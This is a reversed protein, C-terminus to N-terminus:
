KVTYPDTSTGSGAKYLVNANLYVVPRIAAYNYTETDKMGNNISVIYAHYTSTKSPTATWWETKPGNLYNYNQCNKSAATSCGNDISANMYDAATLLGVKQNQEVTRCEVAQEVGTEKVGRAGACQNFTTTKAKDNDSLFSKEKNYEALLNEKIRSASYVNIGSKYNAATNFRNDYPSTMALPTDLVLVVNGSTTIKVVRWLSNELQVYNNVTEGRFVYNGNKNYLGYGSSVIGNDNKIQDALQASTYSEGCNLNPTYSYIAGVKNVKVSGTCTAKNYKSLDKMYGEASLVSVDVTQSGGDKKPLNEQHDAFYEEAAEVMIAEMEEYTKNGGTCSTLLLMIVIFAIVVGLLLGLLKILKKKEDNNNSSSSSSSTELEEEDYDDETELTEEAIIEKGKNGDVKFNMTM